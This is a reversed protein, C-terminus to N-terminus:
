KAAAGAIKYLSQFTRLYLAGDAVAPSARMGEALQNKAVVEPPVSTRVVTTTGAEDCAYLHDGAVIPSAVFSGGLRLASLEEGTKADITYLIGNDTLMWVRGRDLAPACLRSNGKTRNWALHTGTVNGQTSADLRVAMFNAGASGTNIIALNEFFVPPAAANFDTHTVTWIERGTAADYGFAARSGISVLHTRGAVDITGPTGYAKRLDGDLKPKGDPGLDHYDTSRDARWVTKGTRKDLAAVYQQDIGDFTLIVLDQCVVPSSGPGRFHRCPLDRRHWVIAATEPDLRATGYSGFHVYVADDELVCSPSAYTNVANGLPEPSDNEFLLKHHIVRGTRADIAYVFQQKGDEAAATFWLRGHGIVPTSHGFGELDTKWAVNKGSAEDWALPLGRADRQAACGNHFPGNRAPWPLDGAHLARAPPTLLILFGVFACRLANTGCLREPRVRGAAIELSSAVEM